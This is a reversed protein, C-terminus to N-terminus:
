NSRRHPTSVPAEEEAALCNKLKKLLEADTAHNYSLSTSAFGAQDGQGIAYDNVFTTWYPERLDCPVELARVPRESHFYIQLFFGRFRPGEEEHAKESFEGTKNRGHVMFKQTRYRVVLEDGHLAVEAAPCETELLRTLRAALVKLTPPSEAERFDPQEPVRDAQARIPSTGKQAAARDAVFLGSTLALAVVIAWQCNGTAHGFNTRM